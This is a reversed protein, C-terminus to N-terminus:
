NAEKAVEAEAAPAEAPTEEVAPEAAPTKEPTIPTTELEEAPNSEETIM